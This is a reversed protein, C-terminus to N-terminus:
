PRAGDYLSVFLTAATIDAISGPNIRAKHLEKDLLHIEEWGETTYVGGKVLTQKARLNVRNATEQGFKRSIHTDPHTALLILFTQITAHNFNTKTISEQFAPVGHEFTIQFNHLYEFCILDYTSCIKFLSMLDVNDEQMQNIINSNTVSYESVTSLGGPRVLNIAKVVAIADEVTTNQLVTSLAVRLDQVSTKELVLTAGAAACLPVLLLVIGLNTNRGTHWRTGETVAALIEEGVGIQNFKLEGLATLVGREATRRWIPGAGIAAGLFHEYKTDEFDKFRHVNGPKPSASVELVAAFIAIREVLNTVDSSM